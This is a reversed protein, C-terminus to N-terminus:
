VGREPRPEVSLWREVRDAVAQPTFGLEKAIVEGPASAGFRGLGIQLAGEGLLACWGETRGAEVVVFPGGPPLVARRYSEPQALFAEVCPMSVCRAAIRHSELASRAGEILPVESGSAVLTVAAPRGAPESVVYGGREIARWDFDAARALVPLKQRTLVLATPGSARTIAAAWAVATEAGDAPRWVRLNPILRLSALQEIPQHTPGDEGLFVSDHTYVFIVRTKM